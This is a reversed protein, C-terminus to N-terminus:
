HPCKKWSRIPAAIESLFPTLFVLIAVMDGAKLSPIRKKEAHSISNSKGKKKREKQESEHVSTENM